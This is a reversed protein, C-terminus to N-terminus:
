IQDVEGGGLCGDRYVGVVVVAVLEMALDVPPRRGLPEMACREGATDDRAHGGERSDGIDEARNARRSGFRRGLANRKGSPHRSEPEDHRM